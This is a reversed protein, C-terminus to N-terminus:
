EIDVYCRHHILRDTSGIYIYGDVVSPIPAHREARDLQREARKYNGTNYSSKVEFIDVGGGLHYAILDIEGCKKTSYEVNREFRSYEGSQALRSELNDIYQQEKSQKRSM